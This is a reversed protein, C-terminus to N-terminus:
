VIGWDNRLRTYLNRVAEPSSGLLAIGHSPGRAKQSILCDESLFLTVSNGQVWAPFLLCYWPRVQRPLRCGNSGLFVCAGDPRTRMRLHRGGPPFLQGLIKKDRPFLTHVSAIFDALNEEVACARDGDEPPQEASAGENQGSGQEASEKGAQAQCLAAEEAMFAAHDAFVTTTALHSYPALRRWEGSSLPFSLHAFDPDTRCCCTGQEACLRCLDEGQLPSDLDPLTVFHHPSATM